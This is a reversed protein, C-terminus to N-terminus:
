QGGVAPEVRKIEPSREIKERGEVEVPGTPFSEYLFVQCSANCIIHYCTPM